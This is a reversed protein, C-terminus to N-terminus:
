KKRIELIDNIDNFGTRTTVIIVTDGPLIKDKGRPTIIQGNRHISAILVNNKIPLEELPTNIVPSNERINFELAEAKGDLISHLTEVNSGISNRWARVFKAIYEATLNKPYITTDLNLNTIVKDYDIKNIKTVIKAHSKSQVFLSLLINEEDMNTLAVFSEAKEIGEELLVRNDTADANIISANPLLTCLDECRSMKKEIIKVDVGTHQLITALYLATEGGGAIIVNKVSNTKIGIKKFFHAANKPSAVITVIDKERLTFNGNPIFAEDGREVGCILVDCNLKSQIEILNLNCLVSGESIRFKLLEVKGKAFTDIKIASPFRLIRAIETAATLEPNIIMALGLDEKFLDIEKSYEPNRVRAITQCDGSKKALLCSILNLEDSGTVAILLDAETVGAESLTKLSAGNGVYGLIDYRNVTDEIAESNIDIVTIDHDEEMNLQEAIKQGVKGCGVIIIKM